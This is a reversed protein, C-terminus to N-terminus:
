KTKREILMEKLLQLQEEDFEKLYEDLDCFTEKVRSKRLTYGHLAMFWLFLDVVYAHAMGWSLGNLYEDEASLRKEYLRHIAKFLRKQAHVDRMFGPLYRADTMLKSDRNIM